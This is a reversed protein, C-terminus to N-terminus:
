DVVKSPSQIEHRIELPYLKTIPRTIEKNKSRLKASRIVGDLGHVFETILGLNWNLRNCDDHILVVEGLSPNRTPEKCNFNYRERLSM